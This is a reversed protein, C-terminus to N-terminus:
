IVAIFEDISKCTHMAIRLNNIDDANIVQNRNPKEMKPKHCNDLFNKQMQLYEENEPHM